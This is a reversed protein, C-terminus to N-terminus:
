FPIECGDDHEVFQVEDLVAHARSQLVYFRRGRNARALRMAERKASEYSDHKVIPPGNQPEWVVFFSDDANM